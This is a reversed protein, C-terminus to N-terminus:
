VAARYSVMNWKNAVPPCLWPSLTWSSNGCLLFLVNIVRWGRCFLSLNEDEWQSVLLSAARLLRPECKQILDSLCFFLDGGVWGPQGMRPSKFPRNNGKEAMTGQQYGLRIIRKIITPAKTLCSGALDSAHFHKQHYGHHSSYPLKFCMKRSNIYM